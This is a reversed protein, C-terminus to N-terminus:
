LVQNVRISFEAPNDAPPKGAGAVSAVIKNYVDPNRVKQEAEDFIKRLEDKTVIIVM